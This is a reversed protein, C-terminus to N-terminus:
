MRRGKETYRKLRRISLQHEDRGPSLGLFWVSEERPDDRSAGLRLVLDRHSCVARFAADRVLDDASCLSIITAVSSVPHPLLFQRRRPVLLVLNGVYLLLFALLAGFVPMSPFMRVQEETTTLAMFLGGALVPIFVFLVAMLSTVAVRWHGNGLARWTSQFPLCAAYDALISRRATAGDAKVLEGWPQLIRLSQDLSQFLLFLVMGLLAPLFSYLFDAPSFAAQNPRAELRPVFGADLRTQPLFSVILLAVLLAGTAIIFAILPADRLCWPLYAKGTASFDAMDRSGISFEYSGRKAQDAGTAEAGRHAPMASTGITHWIGGSLMDEAQWYGLRDFWRDRLETKFDGVPGLVAQRTYSHMTNTRNLLPILDAISRVDWRLGTWQKLWFGMLIITTVALFAYLAVLTWAVGQSPAWIWRDKVYICTFAASQLPITLAALWTALDFAMIQWPGVLQPRLFSKPYLSQLLALYRERPDEKAMTTFPLIRLSATLINQAYILVAAAVLQPLIRFLFYQGSYISGPYPTLGVHQESFRNSFILAAMMLLCLIFMLGMSLPRLIRPKFTLPPYTRGRPDITQLANKDVAIWQDPPRQLKTAAPSAPENPAADQAPAPPAVNASALEEDPDPALDDSSSSRPERTLAELANQIYPTDDVGPTIKGAIIALEDKILGLRAANATAAMAMQAEDFREVFNTGLSGAHRDWPTQLPAPPSFPQHPNSLEEPSSRAQIAEVHRDFDFDHLDM